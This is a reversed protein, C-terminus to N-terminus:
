RRVQSLPVFHAPVGSAAPADTPPPAIAGVRAKLELHDYRLEWYMTTLDHLRRSLRRAAVLAVVAALWGSGALIWLLM